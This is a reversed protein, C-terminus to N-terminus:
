GSVPPTLSLVELRSQMRPRQETMVFEGGTFDRRPESLLIAMQLPFVHEGYLDQHLCNYDGTEYRLMLPTPLLQEAAHCRQIFEAHTNPFALDLGMLANWRNAMPVLAAYCDRRLEAVLDPLPYSFYQYEGRGYGHREMVVRKRFLNEKQYQAIMARCNEPSLLGSILASGRTNLQDELSPWNINATNHSLCAVM